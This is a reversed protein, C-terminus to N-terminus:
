PNDAGERGKQVQERGAQEKLYDPRGDDDRRWRETAALGSRLRVPSKVQATTSSSRWGTRVPTSEHSRAREASPHVQAEPSHSPRCLSVNAAVQRRGSPNSPFVAAAWAMNGLARQLAASM